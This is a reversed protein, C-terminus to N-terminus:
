VGIPVGQFGYQIPKRNMNLRAPGACNRHHNRAPVSRNWFHYMEYRIAKQFVGSRIHIPQEASRGRKQFPIENDSEQVQHYTQKQWVLVFTSGIHHSCSLELGTQNSKGLCQECQIPDIESSSRFDIRYLTFM